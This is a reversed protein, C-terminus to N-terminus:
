ARNDHGFAGIFRTLARADGTMREITARAQRIDPPDASLWHRCAAINLVLATLRESIEPAAPTPTPEGVLQSVHFVPLGCQPEGDQEVQDERSEELDALSMGGYINTHQDILSTMGIRGLPAITAGSTNFAM